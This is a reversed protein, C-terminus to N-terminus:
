DESSNILLNFSWSSVTAAQKFTGCFTGTVGEPPPNNATVVLLREHNGKLFFGGYGLVAAKNSVQGTICLTQNHYKEPNNVAEDVDISRNSNWFAANAQMCLCLLIPIAKKINM